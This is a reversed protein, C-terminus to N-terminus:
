FTATCTYKVKNYYYGAPQTASVSIRYCAYIQKASVTSANSMITAKTEATPTLEQDAIEKACFFPSVNTSCGADVDTYLFAADTGSVNAVSYGLGNNAASQWTGKTAETCVGTDCITDRICIGATYTFGDAAPTAGTCVNGDKGMQDNEEIKVTYGSAANTSVTLTQAAKSFSNATSLTGWPITTVTSAVDVAQGCATTGVAVAGVTFSLTEDVTASVLVGEVPAVKIDVDDIINNAADRTSVDITYIDATGQVHGTNIPAPNVLGKNSDGIIVTLSTGGTVGVGTNCIVTHGAGSGANISEKTWGSPCTINTTTMTNLDFGNTTLAATTDPAGDNGLSPPDPLTIIIDGNAPVANTATVAVTLTGSQTGYINSNVPASTGVGSSLFFSTGSIIGGVTKNSNGGVSVTDDPFLNNTNIDGWTAATTSITITTAGITVGTGVGGYFSLRPNSLTASASTLNGYTASQLNAPKLLFFGGVMVIILWILLDKKM